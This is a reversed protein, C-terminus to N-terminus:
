EVVFTVEQRKYSAVNKGMSMAPVWKPGNKIARIVEEEMGYGINTEKKAEGITGDELITLGIVIRYMGAPAKNIVPINNNINKSSFKRWGNEGGPFNAQVEVMKINDMKNLSDETIISIDKKRDEKGKESLYGVDTIYKALIKSNNYSMLLKTTFFSILRDYRSYIKGDISISQFKNYLYDFLLVRNEEKAEINEIELKTGVYDGGKTSFVAYLEAAVYENNKQLILIRRTFDKIISDSINKPNSNVQAVANNVTILMSLTLLLRMIM